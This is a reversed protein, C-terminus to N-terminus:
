PFYKSARQMTMNVKITMPFLLNLKIRKSRYRFHEFFIQTTPLVRIQNSEFLLEKPCVFGKISFILSMIETWAPHSSIRMNTLVSASSYNFVGKTFTQEKSLLTQNHSKTNQLMRYCINIIMCEFRFTICGIEFNNLM